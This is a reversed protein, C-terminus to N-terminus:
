IQSARQNNLFLVQMSNALNQIEGAQIRIEREQIQSSEHSERVMLTLARIDERIEDRFQRSLDRDAASQNGQSQIAKANFEVLKKLDGTNERDTQLLQVSVSLQTQIQEHTLEIRDLRDSM